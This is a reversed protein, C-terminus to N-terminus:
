GGINFILYVKVIIQFKLEETDESRSVSLPQIKPEKAQDSKLWLQVTLYKSLGM